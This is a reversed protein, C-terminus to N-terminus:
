PATSVFLDKGAASQSWSWSRYSYPFAFMCEFEYELSTLISIRYAKRRERIIIMLDYLHVFAACLSGKKAGGYINTHISCLFKAWNTVCTEPLLCWFMRLGNWIRSVQLQLCSCVNHIINLTSKISEGMPQCDTPEYLSAPASFLRTEGWSCVKGGFSQRQIFSRGLGCKAQGYSCPVTRLGLTGQGQGPEECNGFVQRQKSKGARERHVWFQPSRIYRSKKKM